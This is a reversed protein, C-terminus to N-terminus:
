RKFWRKKRTGRLDGSVGTHRIYNKIIENAEEIITSDPVEETKGKLIFIAQEIEGSKINNIIVVKKASKNIL